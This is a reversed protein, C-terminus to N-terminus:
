DLSNKYKKIGEGNTLGVNTMLEDMYENQRRERQEKKLEEPTLKDYTDREYTEIMDLSHRLKMKLKTRVSEPEAVTVENAYQMLWRYLGDNDQATIVASIIPEGDAFFHGNPYMKIIRRSLNFDTAITSIFYERFHLRLDVLPSNDHAMFINERMYRDLSFRVLAYLKDLKLYDERELAEKKRQVIALEEPITVRMCYRPYEKMEAISCSAEDDLKVADALLSVRFHTLRKEEGNDLKSDHAILYCDDHNWVLFYPSVVYEKTKNTKYDKSLVMRNAERDHTEYHKFKIKKQEWIAQMIVNIIPLTRVSPKRRLFARRIQKCYIDLFNEGLDDTLYM